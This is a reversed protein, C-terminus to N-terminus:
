ICTDMPYMYFVALCMSPCLIYIKLSYGTEKRGVGMNGEVEGKM